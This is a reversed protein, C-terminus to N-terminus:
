AIVPGVIATIAEMLIKVYSPVTEWVALVNMLTQFIVFENRM